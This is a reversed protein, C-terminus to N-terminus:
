GGVLFPSLGETLSSILIPKFDVEMDSPAIHTAVMMNNELQNIEQLTSKDWGMGVRIAGWLFLTTMLCCSVQSGFLCLSNKSVMNYHYIYFSHLFVPFDGACVDHLARQQSQANIRYKAGDNKGNNKALSTCVRHAAGLPRFWYGSAAIATKIISSASSMFRKELRVLPRMRLMM